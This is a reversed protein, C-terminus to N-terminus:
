SRAERRREERSLPKVNHTNHRQANWSSGSLAERYVLEMKRAVVDFGCARDVTQKARGGLQERLRKDHLLLSLKHELSPVDGPDTLMGNEGDRILEPLGGVPTTVVPLSYNMAELVAMPVGEGYSPLCFITANRLLTGMQDPDVWGLFRVSSTIKLADAIDRANQLEGNGAFWVQLGPMKRILGQTAQLLLEYGKRPELKGSYLIIPTEADDNKKALAPIPSVPNPVVYVPAGNVLPALREAWSDSLAVVHTAMRFAIQAIRSLPHHTVSEMSAAHVHVLVPRNFLRAILIIPLKRTCSISASLHVHVLRSRLVLTPTKCYAGLAAFLKVIRSGETYTSLERCNMNHWFATGRYLRMM